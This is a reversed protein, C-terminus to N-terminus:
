SGVALRHYVVTRGCCTGVSTRTLVADCSVRTETHGAVLTVRTTLADTLCLIRTLVATCAVSAALTHTWRPVITGRTLNVATHRVRTM